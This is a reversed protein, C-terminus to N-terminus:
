WYDEERGPRRGLWLGVFFVLVAGIAILTYILWGPMSFSTGVVFRVGSSWDSANSAADKARVRWYYPADESVSSLEEADVLTYTSAALGIKSVVISDPTFQSNTSVQLEYAMPLSDDSVDSWDFEAKSDAKTDMEPLLPTPTNPPTSEVFFTAVRTSLDDSVSITHEGAASPPAPFSYEFSGDSLSTTYYVQPDSTYTITLEHEPQFGSGSLEITEGIHGPEEMSTAPSIDLGPGVDIEADALNFFNDEVEVLYNGPEIEPVMFRSQFSGFSNTDYDGTIYIVDGDFYVVIASDDGFGTGIITIEDGTSGSDPSLTIDPEVTFGVQGSHGGDDEVTLTHAGALSDPIAVRSTFSGNDKFRRDGGGSVVNISEGDYLFTIEDNGDFGIGSLEVETGVPGKTPTVDTIGIVTFEAYAQVVEEGGYTAYFYYTGGQVDAMDDSDNLVAPIEIVKSVEGNEDTYIYEKVVEYIHEYYNIEEGVDIVDRSFYLDIYYPPQGAISPLFGTGDVTVLDGPEGKEVDVTIVAAASAPVAPIAVMLLSLVVAIALISFFKKHKV